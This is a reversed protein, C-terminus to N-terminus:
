AAHGPREPAPRSKVFRFGVSLLDDMCGHLTLVHQQAIAVVEPTAGAEQLRTQLSMQVSQVVEASSDRERGPSGIEPM